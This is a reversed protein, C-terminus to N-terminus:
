LYNRLEQLSPLLIDANNLNHEQGLGGLIGATAMEAARGSRLNVDTDSVILLSSPQLNLQEAALLLGESHPLLNRVDEETVVSGFIENNFGARHLFNEVAKRSRTSILALQYESRLDHLVDISDSRPQMQEAPAYGRLANFFPCLKEQQKGLQFRRMQSIIFHIIGEIAAMTRQVGMKRKSEPVIPDIWYTKDAITDVLSLDLEALTGDLDFVVAEIKRGAVLGRIRVASQVTAEPEFPEIDLLKRYVYSLIVRASAIVPTALLVGLVGFVIAGSIIGMFTVAPHLQVRRGVLRPILYITEWQMQLTYLILVVIAFSIGSLPLWSWTSQSFLAVAVGITASFGPGVSPLFEMAGALLALGGANPMGVLRLALWTATGVVIALVIQGRMFAHWIDGLDQGLRRVDEQFDIPVQEFIVRQLKYFDKVLWFSLVSVYVVTLLGTTVGRALTLPNAIAGIINALLGGADQMLNDLPIRIGGITSTQSLDQLSEVLGLLATQLSDIVTLGRSIFLAPTIALFILLVVYLAAVTLGRPWGTRRQIWNVPYGLIFALLLAVITPPIMVRFTVM